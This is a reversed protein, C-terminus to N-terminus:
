AVTEEEPGAFCIAACGIDDFPYKENKRFEKLGRMVRRKLFEGCTTKFALFNSVADKWDVGDIQAVGDSFIGLAWGTASMAYAPIPITIGLMGDQISWEVCAQEVYEGTAKRIWIEERLCKRNEDGGHAVVFVNAGPLSKYMPYFPRNNEWGFLHMELEGNPLVFAVSGDGLVHVFGFHEGVYACICTALMDEFSAGLLHMTDELFTQRFSSIETITSDDLSAGELAKRHWQIARATGLAMVRAGIDTNRGTSCGDSVVAFASNERVGSTAYDQCPKGEKIHSNGICFYDDAHFLAM